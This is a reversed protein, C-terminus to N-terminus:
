SAKRLPEKRIAELAADLYPDQLDSKEPDNIKLDPTIGVGTLKKGSALQLHEVSLELHAGNQLPLFRYHTPRGFTAKGVIRAVQKEQAIASFTEAAGSTEEGLLIYMSSHLYVGDQPNMIDVTEKRANVLSALKGKPLFMRALLHLAKDDGMANQRLDIVVRSQPSTIEGLDKELDSALQDYFYPIQILHVQDVYTHTTIPQPQFSGPAITTKRDEAKEPDIISCQIEAPGSFLSRIEYLSLQRTNRGNVMRLLDGPHIDADAGASGAAVTQVWAYGSRKGLVLGTRKFVKDANEQPIIEPPIYSANEDVQELVGQFAGPMLKGMDVEDVYALDVLHLIEPFDKSQDFLNDQTPFLTRATFAAGTTFFILLWTQPKKLMDDGQEFWNFLQM